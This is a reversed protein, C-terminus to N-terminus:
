KEKRKNDNHNHDEPEADPDIDIEEDGTGIISFDKGELGDKYGQAYGRRYADTYNKREEATPFQSTEDYSAREDGAVGDIIGAYYGDEYGADLPSREDTSMLSDPPATVNPDATGAPATQVPAAGSPDGTDPHAINRLSDRTALGEPTLPGDNTLNKLSIVAAATAVIVVIFLVSRIITTTRSDANQPNNNNSM